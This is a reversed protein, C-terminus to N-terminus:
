LKRDATAKRYAALDKDILDQYAARAAELDQEIEDLTATSSDTPRPL